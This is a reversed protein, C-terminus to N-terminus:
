RLLSKSPHELKGKLRMEGLWKMLARWVRLRYRGLSSWSSFYFLIGGIRGPSLISIKYSGVM